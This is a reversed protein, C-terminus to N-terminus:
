FQTTLNTLWEPSAAVLSSELTHDFGTLILMAVLLAAGGLLRKGMKGGSIMRGRWRGLAERSLTGILLLPLATGLGFALMVAAVAPIDRGQSALVSAAGLTPGVCPSWVAGRLLGLMFQGALGNFSFRAMLRNGGNSVGGAVLAFRQQLSESLLVIGFGALIIASIFRFVDGDLGISFGVLAVFLGIGVFSVVLGAALAPLGFRHSSIAPGIVLPLLPLVCPSLTSLMGAMFGFAISGVQM